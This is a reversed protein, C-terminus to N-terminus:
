GCFGCSARCHEGVLQKDMVTYCLVDPNPIADCNYEVVKKGKTRVVVYDAENACREACDFSCTKPCHNKVQRGFKDFKNCLTIAKNGTKGKLLKKCNKAKGSFYFLSDTCTTTTPSAVPSGTPSGTKPTGTPASSPLGTLKETPPAATPVETGEYLENLYVCAIWSGIFDGNCDCDSDGRLHKDYGSNGCWCARPGQLSFYKYDVCLDACEKNSKKTGKEIPLARDFRNDNYCGVYVFENVHTPSSTTPSQSPKVTTPSLTPAATPDLTIATPPSSPSSTPAATPSKIPSDTGPSNLYVCAVLKGINSEDCKCAESSGYKDYGSDGCYCSFPGQLSFYTYGTCLEACKENSKNRGKFEPLAPNKKNDNYCGVYTYGNAPTPAKATPLATPAVTPSKTPSPPSLTPAITPLKTPGESGWRFSSEGTPVDSTTILVNQWPSGKGVQAQIFIQTAYVSGQTVKICSVSTESSFEMGLWFSDGQSRGSWSGDNNFAKDPGNRNGRAGSHLPVGLPNIENGSCDSSEYFDVEDIYLYRSDTSKDKPLWIRWGLASIISPDSKNGVSCAQGRPHLLEYFDPCPKCSESKESAFSNPPCKLCEGNTLYHNIGCTSSAVCEIDVETEIAAFGDVEQVNVILWTEGFLSSLSSYLSPPPDSSKRPCPYSSDLVVNHSRPDLMSSSFGTQIPEALQGIFDLDGKWRYNKKGLDVFSYFDIQLNDLKDTLFSKEPDYFPYVKVRSIKTEKELVCFDFQPTGDAGSYSSCAEPYNGVIGDNLCNPDGLDYDSFKSYCRGNPAVNVGNEDYIEIENLYIRHKGENINTIKVITAGNNVYVDSGPKCCEWFGIAKGDFAGHAFPAKQEMPAHPYRDYFYANANYGFNPSVNNKPCLSVSVTGDVGTGKLHYLLPSKTFTEKVKKGSTNCQVSHHANGPKLYSSDLFSVSVTIDNGKNLSEVCVRPIVQEGSQEASLGRKILMLAPEIIYCTGPLVFSDFTTETDGHVDYNLQDYMGGFTSGLIFRSFHVSLGIAARGHVGSRYQLWYSWITNGREGHIPIHIGFIDGNQPPSEYKDFTKINFTGSSKCKPCWETSGEPQMMVISSDPIWNFFWKSAVHFHSIDYFNGGSMMDFGDYMTVGLREYRMARHHPHGVNHGFEHRTVGFDINAGTEWDYLAYSMWLFPDDANVNALGGSFSHDGKGKAINYLLMLGDYSGDGKEYGLSRTHERMKEKSDDLTATRSNLSPFQKQELIEYTLDVSDFSMKRYYEKNQDLVLKIRSAVMQSEPDNPDEDGFWVPLVLHHFSTFTPRSGGDQSWIQKVKSDDKTAYLTFFEKRGETLQGPYNSDQNQFNEATVETQNLTELVNEAYWSGFVRQQIKEKSEIYSINLALNPVYINVNSKLNRGKNKNLKAIIGDNNHLASTV